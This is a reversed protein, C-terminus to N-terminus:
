WTNGAGPSYSSSIVTDTVLTDPQITGNVRTLPANIDIRAANLEIRAGSLEVTDGSIVRRSGGSSGAAPAAADTPSDDLGAPGERQIALREVVARNGVQRQLSQLIPAAPASMALRPDAALGYAAMALSSHETSRATPEVRSNRMTDLEVHDARAHHDPMRAEDLHSDFDM